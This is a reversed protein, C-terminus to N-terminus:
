DSDLGTPCILIKELFTVLLNLHIQNFPSMNASEKQEIVNLLIHFEVNQMLKANIELQQRVNEMKAFLCIMVTMMLLM